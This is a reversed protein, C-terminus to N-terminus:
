EDADVGSCESIAWGITTSGRAASRATCRTSCAAGLREPDADAADVSRFARLILEGAFAHTRIFLERKSGFTRIVRPQSLGLTGRREGDLHQIIRPRRLRADLGRAAPRRAPPRRQPGM